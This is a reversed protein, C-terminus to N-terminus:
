IYTHCYTKKKKKSFSSFHMFSVTEGGSKRHYSGRNTGVTVEGTRGILLKKGGGLIKKGGGLINEGEDLVYIKGYQQM